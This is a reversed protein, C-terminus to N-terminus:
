IQLGVFFKIHTFTQSCFPLFCIACSVEVLFSVAGSVSSGLSAAGFENCFHQIWKALEEHAAPARIKKIAEYCVTHIEPPMRVVCLSSLSDKAFSSLKRDAIKETALTAADEGAWELFPIGAKEHYGCLALFLGMIAKTLNFNSERFGRTHEKVLVVICNSDLVIDSPSSLVERNSVFNALAQIAGQRLQWKSALSFM